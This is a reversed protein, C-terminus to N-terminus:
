LFHVRLTRLNMFKLPAMFGCSLAGLGLNYVTTMYRTMVSSNYLYNCSWNNWVSTMVAMFLFFYEKWIQGEMTSMEWLIVRSCAFGNQVPWLGCVSTYSYRMFYGKDTSWPLPLNGFPWLHGVDIKSKFPGFLYHRYGESFTSYMLVARKIWLVFSLTKLDATLCTNSLQIILPLITRHQWM